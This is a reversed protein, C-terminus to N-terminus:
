MSKKPVTDILTLAFTADHALRPQATVKNAEFLDVLHAFVNREAAPYLTPSVDAYIRRTLSKVDTPGFDNLTTLVQTARGNRHNILTKVRDLPREVPKGHGAYYVRAPHGLLKACSALFDTMDGDPPSVLSTSWEMVHDGSFIVDGWKLCLHNGIHGPTHIAELQWGDGQIIDGDGLTEDPTFEWDMGEGGGAYGAGALKQMVASRGADSPGYAVIKAGTANALPRTLPSHDLHSHTLFVYSVTRGDIIRLLAQLHEESDPGPDIVALTQDGLIYTNTGLYTMPSPNPALVLTVSPELIYAEGPIPDFDEFQTM